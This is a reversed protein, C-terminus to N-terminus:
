RTKVGSKQCLPIAEEDENCVGWYDNYQYGRDTSKPSIPAELWNQYYSLDAQSTSWMWADNDDSYELGIYIKQDPYNERILKSVFDQETPSKIEGLHGQHDVRCSTKADDFNLPATGLKWCKGEGTLLTFCKVLFNM